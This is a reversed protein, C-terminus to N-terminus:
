HAAGKIAEWIAEKVDKIANVRDVIERKAAIVDELAAHAAPLDRSGVAERFATWAASTAGRGPLHTM